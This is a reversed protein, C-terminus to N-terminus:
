GDAPCSPMVIPTADARLSATYPIRIDPTLRNMTVDADNATKKRSVVSDTKVHAMM